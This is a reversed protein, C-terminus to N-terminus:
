SGYANLRGEDTSDWEMLSESESAPVIVAAKPVFCQTGQTRLLALKREIDEDPMSAIPEPIDGGTLERWQTNLTKAKVVCVVKPRSFKCGVEFEDHCDESVKWISGDPRKETTSGFHRSGCKPCIFPIHESM